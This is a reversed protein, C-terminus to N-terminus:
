VPPGNVTNSPSLNRYAAFDCYTSPAGIFCALQFDDGFSFAILNRTVLQNDTGATLNLPTVLLVQEDSDASDVAISCLTSKFFNRCYSFPTSSFYPLSVFHSHVDDNVSVSHPSQINLVTDLAYSYGGSAQSEKSPYMKTFWTYLSEGSGAAFSQTPMMSRSVCLRPGYSAEGFSDLRPRRDLFHFDFSGRWFAYASMIYFIPNSCVASSVTFAIPSVSSDVVNPTRWPRIVASQASYTGAAVDTSTMLNLFISPLPKRGLELMSTAIEPTCLGARFPQLKAPALPPYSTDPTTDPSPDFGQSFCDLVDDDVSVSAFTKDCPYHPLPRRFGAFVFDPGAGAFLVMDIVAANLQYRLPSILTVVVAGNCVAHANPGSVDLFERVACYPVSFDVVTPGNIDVYKTPIDAITANTPVIVVSSGIAFPVWSIAIRCAHFSTAAIVLRYNISGRWLSHMKALFHLPTDIVVGTSTYSTKTNSICLAELPTVAAKLLVTNATATKSITAYSIPTMISAVHSILQENPHKMCMDSYALTSEPFLTMPDCASMGSAVLWPSRIFAPQEISLNRPKDNTQSSTNPDIDQLTQLVNSAASITAIPLLDKAAGVMMGEVSKTVAEVTPLGQPVCDILDDDEKDREAAVSWVKTSFQSLESFALRGGLSYEATSGYAGVDAVPGDCYINEAHAYVNLTAATDDPHTLSNLVYGVVIGWYNVNPTTSNLYAGLDFFNLPLYMRCRLTSYGGETLSLVTHTCSFATSFNYHASSSGNDVSPHYAFVLNGAHFRTSAIRFTLVVDFRWLRHRRLVDWVAPNSLWVQPIRRAWFNRGALVATTGTILNSVDVLVPRSLFTKWPEVEYAGPARESTTASSLNPVQPFDDRFTALGQVHTNLKQGFVQDSPINDNSAAILKFICIRWVHV